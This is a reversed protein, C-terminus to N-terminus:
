ADSINDAIPLLLGARVSGDDDRLWMQGGHAMVIRRAITLGLGLGHRSREGRWCTEFAHEREPGTLSQGDNVVELMAGDETRAIRMLVTANSAGYKLANDMMRRIADRMQKPDVSVVPSSSPSDVVARRGPADVDHLADRCLQDLRHPERHRANASFTRALTHLAAFHDALEGAADRLGEVLEGRETPDDTVDIADALSVISALAGRIEHVVHRSRLARGTPSDSREQSEDGLRDEPPNKV